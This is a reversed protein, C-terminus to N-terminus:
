IHQSYDSVGLGLDSAGEGGWQITIVMGHSDLTPIVIDYVMGWDSFWLYDIKWGNGFDGYDGYIPPIVM